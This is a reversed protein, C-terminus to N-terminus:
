GCFYELEGKETEHRVFPESQLQMTLHDALPYGDVQYVAKENSTDIFHYVDDLNGVQLFCFYSVEIM